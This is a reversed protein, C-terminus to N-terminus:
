RMSSRIMRKLGGVMEYRIRIKNRSRKKTRNRISRIKAGSRM